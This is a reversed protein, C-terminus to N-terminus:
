QMTLQKLVNKKQFKRSASCSKPFPWTISPHQGDALFQGLFILQWFKGKYKWYSKDNNLFDKLHQLIGRTVEYEMLHTKIEQAAKSDNQLNKLTLYRVPPNNEELLWNIIKEQFQKM